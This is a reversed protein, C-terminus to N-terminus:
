DTYSWHCQKRKGIHLISPCCKLQCWLLPVNIHNTYQNLSICVQVLTRLYHLRPEGLLTSAHKGILRKAIASSTHMDTDRCTRECNSVINGQFWRQITSWISYHHMRKFQKINWKYIYVPHGNLVRDLWCSYGDPLLETAAVSVRQHSCM